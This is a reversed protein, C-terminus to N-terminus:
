ESVCLKYKLLALDKIYKRKSECNSTNWHTPCGGRCLPFISCIQCTERMTLRSRDILNICGEVDSVSIPSSKGVSDECKHCFGKSDVVIAGSDMIACARDISILEKFLSDDNNYHLNDYLYNVIELKKQCYENYTLSLEPNDTDILAITIDLSDLINDQGLKSLFVKISNMNRKDLNIRLTVDCKDHLLRLANYLRSWLLENGQKNEVFADLGGDVTIQVHRIHCRDMGNIFDDSFLTGNTIISSEYEIGKKECVSIFLSSLRTIEDKKLLPEGGFWVVNVACINPNISMEKGLVALLSDSLEKETVDSASNRKEFCYYCSLNCKESLSLVMTLTDKPVGKAEIVDDFPTLFGLEIFENLYPLDDGISTRNDVYLDYVEREIECIAGTQSNFLIVTDTNEELVINYHSIFM